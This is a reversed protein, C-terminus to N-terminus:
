YVVGPRINSYITVYVVEELGCHPCKVPNELTGVVHEGFAHRNIIKINDMSSLWWKHMCNSCFAEYDPLPAMIM